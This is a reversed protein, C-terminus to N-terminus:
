EQRFVALRWRQPGHLPAGPEEALPDPLTVQLSLRERPITFYTSLFYEVKDALQQGLLHAAEILLTNDPRIRIVFRAGRIVEAEIVRALPILTKYLAEDAHRIGDSMAANGEGEAATQPSVTVHLAVGLPQSPTAVRPKGNMASVIDEGTIRDQAWVMAVALCLVSLLVTVGYRTM